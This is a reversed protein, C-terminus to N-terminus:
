GARRVDALDAGAARFLGSRRPFCARCATQFTRTSSTIRWTLLGFLNALKSWQGELLALWDVGGGALRAVFVALLGAAAIELSRRACLRIGVLTAAFLVFVVPIGVLTLQTSM